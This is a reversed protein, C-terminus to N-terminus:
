PNLATFTWTGITVVQANAINVNDLTLDGGFGISASSAVGASSAKSMTVTTSTKALVYTDPEIGTGSIIKDGVAVITTDAFNLVNSGAATSGNTTLSRASRINGQDHCTTGDSAYVRFYNANTGAGAAAIGTVTLTGNKTKTGGSAANMWDSPWNGNAIETGANAAACDAPQTGNFFRVVPTTGIVSEYPDLTGNRVAVSFQRLSMASTALLFTLLLAIAIM